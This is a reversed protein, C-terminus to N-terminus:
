KSDSPFFQRPAPRPGYPGMISAPVIARPANNGACRTGEAPAKGDILYAEVADDICPVSRLYATHGEGEYTILVGSALEKALAEAWAYPTAPDGTTGVVLIPPAGAGWMSAPPHQQTQVPWHACVLLGTLTALGFTESAMQFQPAQARIGAFDPSPEDLCNVSYNAEQVNSYSGDQKRELYSDAFRLLGSGDGSAAATLASSLARYGDEGSYLPALVGILFLGPGVERNNSGRLPGKDVKDSLAKFAQAPSGGNAWACSSANKSCWGFFTQLSKDFGIAQQLSIEVSSLSMDLAGDLVLARVNQPFLQAYHAGLSTGYSYGLYTLKDEGLATRVQDMDRAVDPTGLHPLLKPFKQACEDAFTKAVADSQTWEADDDPTPDEAALKEVTSHCDLPTSQGVGRPDFAVIDFHSKITPSAIQVFDHLFDIASAGPGGPNILLSGIRQPSTTVSREVAVSIQEGAPDAYDLPVKLEACEFDGCRHWQFPPPTPLTPNSTAEAGAAGTAPAGSGAASAQASAGAGGSTAAADAVSGAASAGSAAAATPPAGSGAASPPVTATTGNAGATPPTSSAGASGPRAAQEPTGAQNSSNAASTASGTDSTRAADDSSQSCAFTTLSISGLLLLKGIFLRSSPVPM